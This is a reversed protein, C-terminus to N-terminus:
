PLFGSRDCRTKRSAILRWTLLLDVKFAIRNRDTFYRWVYRRDETIIVGDSINEVPVISGTASPFDYPETINQKPNGVLFEKIKSMILITTATIRPFEM